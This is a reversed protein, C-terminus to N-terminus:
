TYNKRFYRERGRSNQRKRTRSKKIKMTNIEEKTMIQAADEEYKMETEADNSLINHKNNNINTNNNNKRKNNQNKYFHKIPVAKTAKRWAKNIKHKGEASRGSKDCQMPMRENDRANLTAYNNDHTRNM